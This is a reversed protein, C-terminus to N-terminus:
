QQKSWDRNRVGATQAPDIEKAKQLISLILENNKWEPVPYKEHMVALVRIMGWARDLEAENEFCEEYPLLQGLGYITNSLDRTLSHRAEDPKNINFYQLATFPLRVDYLYDQLISESNEHPCAEVAYSNKAFIFIISLILYKM